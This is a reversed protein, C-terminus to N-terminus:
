TYLREVIRQLVTLAKAEEGKEVTAMFGKIISGYFLSVKCDTLIATLLWEGEEPFYHMSFNSVSYLPKLGILCTDEDSMIIMSYMSIESSSSEMHLAYNKGEGIEIITEAGIVDSFLNGNLRSLAADVPRGILIAYESPLERLGHIFNWVSADGDYPVEIELSRLGQLEELGQTNQLQHSAGINIRELRRLHSFTPLSKLGEFQETSLVQLGTLSSLGSIAELKPCKYVVLTNLRELQKLEMENLNEMELVRLSRLRPCIEGSIVLKSIDNLNQFVIAQLNHMPNRTSAEFDISDRVKSLNLTGSLSAGEGCLYLSRLNSLQQLSQVFFTTDTKQLSGIIRLKELHSFKEILDPLNQLSPSYSIELNRLEFSDQTNVQLQQQFTSWLEKMGSVQLNHLKRLPIWSPINESIKLWLLETEASDGISGMFYTTTKFSSYELEHFCRGKTEALIQKFGKAEMSRLYHPKWLRPPGLEDAMQRGLDRFHDHMEIHKLTIGLVQMPASVEILCKEQLIQIAHEASWGSANWVPVMDAIYSLPKRNFFCAMDIFIQKEHSELGDFSIKLKQMIEKPQIKKIKELELEWYYEDRGYVHAGLVKVSLPLGGCFKVFSEVLKNYAVPPDRAGFAHNCFLEKAHDLNMGKMRYRFDAGRLVSQDRTTIIVLSGRSLLGEFLLADLQDGHDVDDLVILFHLHRSRGLRHKLQGIGEDVNSFVRPEHFLDRFLQSQLSQLDRNAHSDRVDSLFCSAHYESRKRNFLEKALTTKGSGGLGYIGVITVKHKGTESCCSEFDQVVEALGVPYKAVHLPIRRKMEQLVRSVIKECLNDKYKIFEYGSINSAFHLAKKWEDLKDLYKGKSQYNSFAAAYAGRETCRLEKPEVDYFVPIFLADTQELMLVLENLCWSSMAYGKSFIAIQVVSSCIASRIASSISDGGEIEERDLFAKCERAKLHDYLEKALTDKVDPGRHSIFADYLKPSAISRERQHQYEIFEQRSSSSSAMFPDQRSSSSSSAMFPDQRSSSSFSAM